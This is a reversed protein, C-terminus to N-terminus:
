WRAHCLCHSTEPSCKETLWDVKRRKNCYVIAQMITLTEYLDCLTEFKWDEQEVAIYFQRIGEFVLTLDDRKVLLRIPNCLIRTPLELVEPPIATAFLAVQVPEPLFKFVDYLSRM